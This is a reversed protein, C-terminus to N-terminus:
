FRCQSSWGQHGYPQFLTFHSLFLQHCLHHCSWKWSLTVWEAMLSSYSITKQFLYIKHYCHFIIKGQWLYHFHQPLEHYSNCASCPKMRTSMFLIDLFNAIALDIEILYKVTSENPVNSRLHISFPSTNKTVVTWLTILSFFANPHSLSHVLIVPPVHVFEPPFTTFNM